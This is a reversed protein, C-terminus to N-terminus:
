QTNDMIDRGIGILEIDPKRASVSEWNGPDWIKESSSRVDNAEL